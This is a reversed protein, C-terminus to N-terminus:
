HHEEIVRTVTVSMYERLANGLVTLPIEKVDLRLGNKGLMQIRKGVAEVDAASVASYGASFFNIVNRLCKDSYLENLSNEVRAIQMDIEEDLNRLETVVDEGYSVIQRILEDEVEILQREFERM